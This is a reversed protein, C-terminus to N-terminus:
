ATEKVPYFSGKIWSLIHRDFVGMINQGRFTVVKKLKVVLIKDCKLNKYVLEL